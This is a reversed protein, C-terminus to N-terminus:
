RRNTKRPKWRGPALAYYNGAYGSRIKDLVKGIWAGGGYFKVVAPLWRNCDPPKIWIRRPPADPPFLNYM